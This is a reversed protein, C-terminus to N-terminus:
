LLPPRDRWSGAQEAPCDYMLSVVSAVEALDGHHLGMYSLKSGCLSLAWPGHVHFARGDDLGLTFPVFPVARLAADIVAAVYGPPM